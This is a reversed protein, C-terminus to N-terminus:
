FLILFPFIPEKLLIKKSVAGMEEVSSNKSPEKKIIRGFNSGTPLVPKMHVDSRFERIMPYNGTWAKM